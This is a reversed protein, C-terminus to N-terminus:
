AFCINITEVLINGFGLLEVGSESDVLMRPINEVSCILFLM